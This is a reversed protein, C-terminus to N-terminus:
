RGSCCPPRGAIWAGKGAMGGADEAGGEFENAVGFGAAGSEEGEGLEGFM